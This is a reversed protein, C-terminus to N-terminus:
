SEPDSTTRLGTRDATRADRADCPQDVDCPPETTTTMARRVEERVEERLTERMASVQRAVEAQMREQLLGEAPSATSSPTSSWLLDARASPVAVM